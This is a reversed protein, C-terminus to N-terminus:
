YWPWAWATTEAKKTEKSLPPNPFMHAMVKPPIVVLFVIWTFMFIALWPAPNLQPM